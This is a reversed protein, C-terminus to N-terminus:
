HGSLACTVTPQASTLRRLIAVFPFAATTMALRLEKFFSLRLVIAANPTFPAASQILDQKQAHATIAFAIIVLIAKM